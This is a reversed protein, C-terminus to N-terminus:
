SLIYNYSAPKKLCKFRYMSEFLSHHDSQYLVVESLISKLYTDEYFNSYIALSYSKAFCAMPICYSVYVMRLIIKMLMSNCQDLMVSHSQLLIPALSDSLMM